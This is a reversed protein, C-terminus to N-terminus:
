HVCMGDNRQVIRADIEERLDPRNEIHKSLQRCESIQADVHRRIDDETARIELNQLRSTSGVGEITVQPRSTLMLNVTPGLAFLYGLLINREKDPYEDLADVLIYV